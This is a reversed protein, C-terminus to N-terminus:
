VFAWFGNLVSALCPELNYYKEEHNIPRRTRIYVNVRRAEMGREIVVYTPELLNESDITFHKNNLSQLSIDRLGKAVDGYDCNMLILHDREMGIVWLCWKFEKNHNFVVILVFYNYVM